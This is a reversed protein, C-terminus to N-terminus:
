VDETGRRLDTPVLNGHHNYRLRSLRWCLGHLWSMSGPKVAVALGERLEWVSTPCIFVCEGCAECKEADVGILYVEYETPGPRRM